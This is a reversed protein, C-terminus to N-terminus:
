AAHSLNGHHQSQIPQLHSFHSTTLMHHERCQPAPQQHRQSTMLALAFGTLTARSPGHELRLSMAAATPEPTLGDKQCWQRLQQGTASGPRFSQAGFLQTKDRHATAYQPRDFDLTLTFGVTSEEVLAGQTDDMESPLRGGECSQWYGAQTHVCVLIHAQSTLLRNLLACYPRIAETWATLSNDPLCALDQRLHEQCASLSNFVIVEAGAAECCALAELYREPTHPAPFTLLKYPGLEPFHRATGEDTDIVVVRSLQGATLGKSILLARFAKGSGPAGQLLLRIRRLRPLPHINM